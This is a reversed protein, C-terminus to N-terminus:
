KKFMRAIAPQLQPWFLALGAGVAITGGLTKILSELDGFFGGNELSKLYSDYQEKTILDRVYLDTMEATTEAEDDFFGAIWAGTIGGTILLAIGAVLMVTGTVVFGLGANTDSFKELHKVFRDVRAAFELQQPSGGGFEAETWNIRITEWAEPFKSFWLAIKAHADAPILANDVGFRFKIWTDIAQKFRAPFTKVVNAIKEEDSEWFWSM